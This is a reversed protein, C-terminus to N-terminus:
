GNATVEAKGADSKGGNRGGQNEKKNSGDKKQEKNNSKSKRETLKEKANMATTVTKKTCQSIWKTIVREYFVFIMLAFVLAVGVFAILAM